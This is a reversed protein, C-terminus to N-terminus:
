DRYLLNHRQERSMQGMSQAPFFANDAVAAKRSLRAEITEPARVAAVEALIEDDTMPPIAAALLRGAVELLQRGAQRRMADELLNQIASDSLLGAEKAREAVEDPLTIVLQTM